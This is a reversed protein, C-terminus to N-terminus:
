VPQRSGPNGAPYMKCGRYLLPQRGLSSPQLTRTFSADERLRFAGLQEYNGARYRVEYEDLSLVHNIVNEMSDPPRRELAASLITGERVSLTEMNELLWGEVNANM